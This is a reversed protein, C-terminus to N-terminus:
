PVGKKVRSESFESPKKMKRSINIVINQSADQIDNLYDLFERKRNM